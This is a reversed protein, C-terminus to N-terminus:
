AMDRKIVTTKITSSLLDGDKNFINSEQTTSQDKTTSNGELVRKILEINNNDEHYIVNRTTITNNLNNSSNKDM